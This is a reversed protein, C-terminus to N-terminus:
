APVYEGGTVDIVAGNIFSAEESCLFAILGPFDEPAGVRGAPIRAVAAKMAASGDGGTMKTAVNGPSVTNITIGYGAYEAVLARTLGSLGAKSAVYASGALVPITRAAQSGIVVIRGFRAAMMAPLVRQVCLLPATLNVAIVEEFQALTLKHTPIKVGNEKPSIAANNVLIDVAGLRQGVEDFFAGIARHDRLDCTRGIIEASQAESEMDELTEAVHGPTMGLFAVRHGDRVFRRVVEKGIGSSGGTIVATRSSGTM